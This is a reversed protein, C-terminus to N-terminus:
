LHALEKDQEGEKPQQHLSDIWSPVLFNWSGFNPAWLSDGTEPNYNEHLGGSREMDRELSKMVRKAIDVAEKTYGYRALGHTIIWNSILWVPGQWNSVVWRRQESHIYMMDKKSTNYTIESKSLSRLGYDSLYEDSNLIYQQIMRDAQDQTPVGAWLPTLNTWSKVQIHDINEDSFNVVDYYTCDADHWLIANIRIKLLEAKELWIANSKGMRKTIEALAHYEMYLYTNADVSEAYFDPTNLITANNDVGSERDCRWRTLGHFGRREEWYNVFAVLKEWKQETWWDDMGFHNLILLVSQCLFPKHQDYPDWFRYPSITRPVAGAATVFALFNSTGERFYQMKDPFTKSFAIGMFHLDWDYQEPYHFKGVLHNTGSIDAPYQGPYEGKERQFKDPPPSPLIYHYPLIGEPPKVIHELLRSFYDTFQHSM